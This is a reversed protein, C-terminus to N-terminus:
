GALGPAAAARAARVTEVAVRISPNGEIMARFQAADLTLFTSPQLTRVSAVRRADSLLAMEGFFDGDSLVALPREDDGVTVAVKGRAIVYFRDGRAGERIVSAGEDLQMSTMMAALAARETEGLAAFLPV